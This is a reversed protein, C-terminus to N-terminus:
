CSLQQFISSVSIYIGRCISTWLSSFFFDNNKNPGLCVPFDQRIALIDTEPSESNFYASVDVKNELDAVISQTVVNLLLLSTIVFLTLVIISITAASLWSNRWFNQLGTKIVRILNTKFMSKILEYNRIEGAEGRGPRPRAM